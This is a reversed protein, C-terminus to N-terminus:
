LIISVEPIAIFGFEQPLISHNTLEVTHTVAEHITCYGLDVSSVDFQLDSTTVVAHISFPVPLTQFFTL